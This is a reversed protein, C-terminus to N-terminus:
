LRVSNEMKRRYQKFVFALSVTTVLSFVSPEPVTYNYRIQGINWWSAIGEDYQVFDAAFSTLMTNQDYTAALVTFYGTLTNDGRGNGVFSLGPASNNFPYRTANSYTTGPQFPSGDGTSFDVYWWDFNPFVRFDTISFTVTSSSSSMTFTHGDEPIILRTTGNGVWSSPSSTFSFNTIQGSAARSMAVLLIVTFFKPKM